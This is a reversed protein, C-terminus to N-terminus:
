MYVRERMIIPFNINLVLQPMPETNPCNTIWSRDNEPIRRKYKPWEELFRKQDLLLLEMPIHERPINSGSCMRCVDRCSDTHKAKFTVFKHEINRARVHYYYYESQFDKYRDYTIDCVKHHKSYYAPPFRKYIERAFSM